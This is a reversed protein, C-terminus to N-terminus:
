KSLMSLVLDYRKWFVKLIKPLFVIKRLNKVFLMNKTSYLLIFIGANLVCYILLVGLVEISSSVSEFLLSIAQLGIKKQLELIDRSLSFDGPKKFFFDMSGLNEFIWKVPRLLMRTLTYPQMRGGERPIRRM